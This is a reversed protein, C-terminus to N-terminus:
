DDIGFIFYGNLAGFTASTGPIRKSSSPWRIGGHAPIILLESSVIMTGRNIRIAISIPEDMPNVLWIRASLLNIAASAVIKQRAVREIEVPMGLVIAGERDRDGILPTDCEMEWHGGIGPSTPLDIAPAIETTSSPGAFIRFEAIGEGASDYALWRMSVGTPWPNTIFYSPELDYSKGALVPWLIHTSPVPNPILNGAGLIERKEPRIAGSASTKGSSVAVGWGESHVPAPAENGRDGFSEVTFWDGAEATREMRGTWRGSNESDISERTVNQNPSSLSPQAERKPSPAPEPVQSGPASLGPSKVEFIGIELIEDKFQMGLTRGIWAAVEGTKMESAHLTVPLSEDESALMPLNGIAPRLIRFAQIAPVAQFDFSIWGSSSRELSFEGPSRDSSAEPKLGADGISYQIKEKRYLVPIGLSAGIAAAISESGANAPLRLTGSIIVDDGGRVEAVATWQLFTKLSVSEMRYEVSLSDAAAMLSTRLAGKKSGSSGQVLQAVVGQSSNGSIGLGSESFIVDLGATVIRKAGASEIEASGERVQLEGIPAITGQVAEVGESRTELSPLALDNIRLAFRGASSSVTGAPTLVRVAAGSQVESEIGGRILLMEADSQGNEPIRALTGPELHIRSSGVQIEPKGPDSNRMWDGSHLPAGAKARMWADNVLVQLEGPRIVKGPISGQHRFPHWLVMGLFIAAALPLWKWASGWRLKTSDIRPSSAAAAALAKKVFEEGVAHRKLHSRLYDGQLKWDEVRARCGRCAGIHNEVEEMQTKPLEGDLFQSLLLPDISCIM